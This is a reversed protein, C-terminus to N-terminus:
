FFFSRFCLKCAQSVLPRKTVLPRWRQVAATTTHNPVLPFCQRAVLKPHTPSLYLTRLLFFVIWLFAPHTNLFLFFSNLTPTPASAILSRLRPQIPSFKFFFVGLFQRLTGKGQSKEISSRSVGNLASTNYSTKKFYYLFLPFVTLLGGGGALSVLAPVTLRSLPRNPPNHHHDHTTAHGGVM